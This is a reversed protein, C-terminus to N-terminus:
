GEGKHPPCPPELGPHCRATASTSKSATWGIDHGDALRWRGHAALWTPCASIAVSSKGEGILIPARYILLRDVLDAALFSSAAGVRGEVLLDNVDHLEHIAQPSALRTWGGSRGGRTLL